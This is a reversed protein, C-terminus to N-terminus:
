LIQPGFLTMRHSKGVDDKASMQTRNDAFRVTCRDIWLRIRANMQEYTNRVSVWPNGRPRTSCPRALRVVVTAERVLIKDAVLTHLAVALEVSEGATTSCNRVHGECSVVGEVGVVRGERTPRCMANSVHLLHPKIFARRHAFCRANVCHDCHTPRGDHALSTTDLAPFPESRRSRGHRRYYVHQPLFHM